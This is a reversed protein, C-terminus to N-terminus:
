AANGGRRLLQIAQAPAVIAGGFQGLLSAKKTEKHFNGDSTVFVERKHHIHSWYAQVDCKANRWSTGVSPSDPAIGKLTCYDSWRFPINPFLADHIRQEVAISEEGSFLCWDIYGIGFYALPKLMELQGLGLCVLRQKFQTFSTLTTGDQQRESASIAVLAVSATELEHARALSLVAQAEPRADAVAIVCNTDLTFTTTM